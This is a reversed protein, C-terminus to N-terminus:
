SLTKALRREGGIRLDGGYSPKPSVGGTRYGSALGGGEVSISREPRGVEYRLRTAAYGNYGAPSPLFPQGAGLQLNDDFGGLFETELMLDQLRDSERGSEPQPQFVRAPPRTM